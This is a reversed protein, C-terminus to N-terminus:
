SAVRFKSPKYRKCNDNPKKQKKSIGCVVDYWLMDIGKIAYTVSVVAYKCHLCDGM